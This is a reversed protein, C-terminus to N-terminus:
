QKLKSKLSRTSATLGALRTRLRQMKANYTENAPPARASSRKRAKSKGKATAKDDGNVGRGVRGQNESGKANEADEAEAGDKKPGGEGSEGDNGGATEPAATATPAAANVAVEGLETKEILARM